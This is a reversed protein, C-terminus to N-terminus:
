RWRGIFRMSLREIFGLPYSSMGEDIKPRGMEKYPSRETIDPPRHRYCEDSSTRSRNFGSTDSDMVRQAWWLGNGPTERTTDATDAPTEKRDGWYMVERWEGWCLLCVFAYSTSPELYVLPLRGNWCRRRKACTAPYRSVRARTPATVGLVFCVISRPCGTVSIFYCLTLISLVEFRSFKGLFWWLVRGEETKRVVSMSVFEVQGEIQVCELRAGRSARVATM